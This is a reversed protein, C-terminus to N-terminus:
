DMETWKHTNRDAKTHKQGKRDWNRDWTTSLIDSNTRFIVPYIRFIVPNTM